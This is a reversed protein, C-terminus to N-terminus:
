VYDWWKQRIKTLQCISFAVLDKSIDETSQIMPLPVKMLCTGWFFSWTLRYMSNLLTITKVLIDLYVSFLM